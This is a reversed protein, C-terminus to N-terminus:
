PVATARYFADFDNRTRSKRWVGSYCQHGPNDTNGDVSVISAGSVKVVVCHHQYSGMIFGVDGPQVADKSVSSIGAVNSIGSGTKWNGIGAGAGLSTKLTWMAFHGCWAQYAGSSASLFHYGNQLMISYGTNVGRGGYSTAAYEDLSRWGYRTSKGAEMEGAMLASVRGIQSIATLIIKTRDQGLPDYNLPNLRELLYSVCETLAEIRKTLRYRSEPDGPLSAVYEQVKQLITYMTLHDFSPILIGDVFDPLLTPNAGVLSGILRVVDENYHGGTARLIGMVQDFFLKVSDDTEFESSHLMRTTQAGAMGDQALGHAGQFQKVAKRTSKGYQGDAGVVAGLSRLFIQIARIDNAHLDKMANVVPITSM